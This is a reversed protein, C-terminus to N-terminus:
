LEIIQSHIDMWGHIDMRLYVLQYIICPGRECKVNSTLAFPPWTDNILRPIDSFPTYKMVQKQRIFDIFAWKLSYNM